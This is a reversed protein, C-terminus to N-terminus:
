LSQNLVHDNELFFVIISRGCLFHLGDEMFYKKCHYNKSVDAHYEFM